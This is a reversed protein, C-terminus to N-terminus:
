KVSMYRAAAYYHYAAWFGTFSFGLLVYRLSDKSNALHPAILDSCFGMLQPAVALNAINVVFLLVAIGKARM